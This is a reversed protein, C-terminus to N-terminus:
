KKALTYTSTVELVVDGKTEDKTYPTVYKGTFSVKGKIGEFRGTGKIYEGTGKIIKKGEVVPVTGQFKTMSISGDAFNIDCYGSFSTEGGKISDFTLRSHYAATEGNEYIAVGRRELVGIVHGEVDPVPVAEMKTIPAAIKHKSTIEGALASPVLILATILLIGICGLIAITMKNKRM